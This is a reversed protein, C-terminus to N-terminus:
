GVYEVIDAEDLKRDAIGAFGDSGTYTDEGLIKGDADIPWLTAMRAEYLYHADPDDVEIGTAQLTRGPYAMRMVGETLICDRDVVLRDIDLQLRTAGGAIFREYFGRVGDKGVPSSGPDPAGYAHYQVGDSLTDLLGDLDGASEAKMHALVVELNRRLIPDSETALREEVKRWTVAQDIVPSMQYGRDSADTVRNYCAPGCARM